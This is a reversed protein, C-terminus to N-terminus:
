EDDDYDQAQRRRGRRRTSGGNEEVNEAEEAITTNGNDHEGNQVQERERITLSAQLKKELEAGQGEPGWVERVLGAVSEDNVEVKGRPGVYWTTATDAEGHQRADKDVNKVLYGQRQLKALTDETKTDNFTNTEANLRTLYRKLMAESMEGGNIRILSIVLTYFGIYAAEDDASVIRSPAMIHATRYAEPLVSVLVYNGSANTKNQSKAAKRKEEKTLKDKVPLEVMEMGFVLRLTQQAGDFVRRFARGEDGLVKEKIGDRRISTRSFDCALAYRVLKKVLQSDSSEAVDQLQDEEVENEDDDSDLEDRRQRQRPRQEEEEEDEVVHRSRRSAAPM